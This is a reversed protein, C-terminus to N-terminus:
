IITKCIYGQIIITFFNYYFIITFKNELTSVLL